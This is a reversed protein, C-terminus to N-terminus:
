EELQVRPQPPVAAARKRLRQVSRRLGLLEGQRAAIARRAADIEAAM